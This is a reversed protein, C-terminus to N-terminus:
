QGNAAPPGDPPRRLEAEAVALFRHLLPLENDRRWAVVLESQVVPSELPRHVAGTVTLHSVSEPAVAVGFGAAVMSVLTATQSVEQVIRPSFGSERCAQITLEYMTSGWHGPYTVFPDGALDELRVSPQAALRHTAPLVVALREERLVRAELEPQALRIRGFCVDLRGSLLSDVQAPSLMEGQAEMVADPFERRFAGAVAPLLAYTATGTFGVALRGTVGHSARVAVDPAEAVLALIQRAQELLARGAETLAVSRTTRRFLAVGLEKELQRIQQSLPPQQMHLREAARHFHLEEAVALFYRLHRLEM